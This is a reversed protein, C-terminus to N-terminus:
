KNWGGNEEVESYLDRFRRGAEAVIPRLWKKFSLRSYHGCRGKEMIFVHAVKQIAQNSNFGKGFCILALDWAKREDVKRSFEVPSFLGDDNM